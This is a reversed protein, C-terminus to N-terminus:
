VGLCTGSLEALEAANLYVFAQSATYFRLDLVAALLVGAPVLILPLLAGFAGLSLRNKLALSQYLVNWLGWLNPVVAMPFVIASGLGAPLRCLAARAAVHNGAALEHYPCRAAIDRGYLPRFLSWTFHSDRGVNRRQYAVRVACRATGVLM